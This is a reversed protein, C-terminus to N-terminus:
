RFSLELATRGADKAQENWATREASRADRAMRDDCMDAADEGWKRLEEVSARHALPQPTPTEGWEQPYFGYMADDSQEYSM